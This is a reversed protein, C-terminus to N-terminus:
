FQHILKLLHGPPDIYSLIVKFGGSAKSYISSSVHTKIKFIDNEESTKPINLQLWCTTKRKTHVPSVVLIDFFSIDTTRVIVAPADGFIAEANKHFIKRAFVLEEVENESEATEVM